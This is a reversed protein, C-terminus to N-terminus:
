EWYKPPLPLRIETLELGAMALLQGMFFVKLFRKVTVRHTDKGIIHRKPFM